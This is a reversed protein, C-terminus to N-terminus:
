RTSKKRRGRNSDGSLGDTYRGSPSGDYKNMKGNPNGRKNIEENNMRGNVIKNMQENATTTAVSTVLSMANRMHEGNIGIARKELGKHQQHQHQHPSHTHHHQPPQQHYRPSTLTEREGNDDDVDAVKTQYYETDQNTIEPNYDTLKDNTVATHPATVQANSGHRQNM